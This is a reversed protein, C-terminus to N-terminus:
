KNWTWWLKKSWPEVIPPEPEPELEVKQDYIFAPPAAKPEANIFSWLEEIRKDLEKEGLGEDHSCSSCKAPIPPADGKELYKLGDQVAKWTDPRIDPDLLALKLKERVQHKIDNGDDHAQTQQEPKVNWNEEQKWSRITKPSLGVQLAIRKLPIGSEFLEKCKDHLSAARQKSNAM